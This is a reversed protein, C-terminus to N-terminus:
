FSLHLLGQTLVSSNPLLSTPHPAMTHTPCLLLPVTVAAVALRDLEKRQPGCAPTQPPLLLPEGVSRVEEQVATVICNFTHSDSRLATNSKASDEPEAGVNYRQFLIYPLHYTLIVLQDNETTFRNHNCYGLEKLTADPPRIRRCRLISVM